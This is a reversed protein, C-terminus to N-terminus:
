LVTMDNLIPEVVIEVSSMPPRVPSIEVLEIIMPSFFVDFWQFEMSNPTPLVESAGNGASM